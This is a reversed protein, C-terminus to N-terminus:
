SKANLWREYVSSISFTQKVESLALISSVEVVGPTSAIAEIASSLERQSPALVKVLFNYPGTTEYAEIVFYLGRLMERAKTISDARVRVLLFATADLGLKSPDTRVTFGRIVGENLLRKVRLYVTAESVNMKSAIESWPMRGEEELFKILQLDREDVTPTQQKRM